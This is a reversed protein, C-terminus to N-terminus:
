LGGIQQRKHAKLDDATSTVSQVDGTGRPGPPTGRRQTDALKAVLPRLKEVQAERVVPDTETGPVLTKVEGPWDKIERDVREHLRAELSEVRKAKPKLDSLEAERQKAIKEWEGQEQAKQEAAKRDAEERAADKRRLKDLQENIEKFRSYPVTQEQPQETKLAEAPQEGSQASPEPTPGATM